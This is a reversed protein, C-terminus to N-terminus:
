LNFDSGYGSFFNPLLISCFGLTYCFFAPLPLTLALSLSVSPSVLSLSLSPCFACLSFLFCCCCSVFFYLSGVIAAVTGRRSGARGAVAVTNTPSPFYFIRNKFRQCCRCCNSVVTVFSPVQLRLSLGLRLRLWLWLWLQGHVVLLCCKVCNGSEIALMVRSHRESFFRATPLPHCPCRASTSVAAYNLAASQRCIFVAQPWLLPSWGVSTYCASFLKM